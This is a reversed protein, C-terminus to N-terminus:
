CLNNSLHILNMSCHRSCELHLTHKCFWLFIIQVLICNIFFFSCIKLLPQPFWNVTKNNYNNFFSPDWFFMIQTLKLLIYSSYSHYQISLELCYAPHILLNGGVTLISIRFFFTNDTIGKINEYMELNRLKIDIILM